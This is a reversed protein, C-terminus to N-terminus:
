DNQVKKEQLYARAFQKLWSLYAMAEAQAHIYVAQDQDMMREILGDPEGGLGPIQECLWGAVSDFLMKHSNDDKALLTVLAQGLGNMVITAPLGSVYSVYHGYEKNGIKKIEELAHEARKQDLTRMKTQDETM